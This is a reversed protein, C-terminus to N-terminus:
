SFPRKPSDTTAYGIVFIGSAVALLDFIEVGHAIRLPEVQQRRRGGDDRNTARRFAQRNTHLDNGRWPTFIERQPDGLM